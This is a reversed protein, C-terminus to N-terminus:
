GGAGVQQLTGHLDYMVWEEVIEFMRVWRVRRGAPLDRGIVCYNWITNDMVISLRLEDSEPIPNTQGDM